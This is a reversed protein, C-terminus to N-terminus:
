LKFEYVIATLIQRVELRRFVHPTHGLAEGFSRSSFDLLEFKAFKGSGYGGSGSLAGLHLSARVPASM